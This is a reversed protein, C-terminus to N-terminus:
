YDIGPQYWAVVARRESTRNIHVKIHQYISLYGAPAIREPGWVKIRARACTSTFAM